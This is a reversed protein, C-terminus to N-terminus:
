QETKFHKLMDKIGEFKEKDKRLNDFGGLKEAAIKHMVMMCYPFLSDIDVPPPSHLKKICEDRQQELLVDLPIAESLLELLRDAM